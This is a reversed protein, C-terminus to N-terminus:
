KANKKANDCPIPMKKLDKEPAPDAFTSAGFSSGGMAEEKIETGFVECKGLRDLVVAALIQRHRPVGADNRKLRWDEELVRFEVLKGDAFQKTAAKRLRTVEAEDVMANAAIYPGVKDALKKKGEDDIKVKLLGKALTKSSEKDDATEKCSVRLDFALDHDGNALGHFILALKMDATQAEAPYSVKREGWLWKDEVSRPILTTKSDWDKDKWKDGDLVVPEGGDVRVRLKWERAVPCEKGKVAYTNAPSKAFYARAWVSDALSVETTNPFSEDSRMPIERTAFVLSGINAKHLDGLIGQDAKTEVKASSEPKSDTPNAAPKGCGVASSLIMSLVVFRTARM